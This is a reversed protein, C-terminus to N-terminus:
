FQFLLQLRQLGKKLQMMVETEVQYFGTDTTDVSLDLGSWMLSRGISSFLKVLDKVTATFFFDGLKVRVKKDPLLCKKEM